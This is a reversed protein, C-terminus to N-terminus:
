TYFFSGEAPEQVEKVVPERRYLLSHILLVVATLYILFFSRSGIQPIQEGPRGPKIGPWSRTQLGEYYM